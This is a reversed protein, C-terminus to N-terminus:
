KNKHKLEEFRAQVLQKYNEKDQLEYCDSIAMLMLQWDTKKEPGTSKTTYVVVPEKSIEKKKNDFRPKKNYRPKSKNYNKKEM